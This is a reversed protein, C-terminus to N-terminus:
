LKALKIKCKTLTFVLMNSSSFVKKLVHTGFLLAECDYVESSSGTKVQVLDSNVWNKYGIYMYYIDVQHYM